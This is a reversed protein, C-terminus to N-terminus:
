NHIIAVNPHEHRMQGTKEDFSFMESDAVDAPHFMCDVAVFDAQQPRYPKGKKVAKIAVVAEWLGHDKSVIFEQLRVHGQGDSIKKCFRGFPYNILAFVRPKPMAGNLTVKGSISGGNSVDVAEYGFAVPHGVLGVLGLLLITVGFLTRRM